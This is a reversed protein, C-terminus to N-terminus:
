RAAIRPIEAAPVPRSFYYGQFADCRRHRLFELQEATEVGEAVVELKLEHALAVVASTIAAAGADAVIDQVFSRDIKLTDVPFRMLNLLNSYGTGFDDLAIKVGLNRLARMTALAGAANEMAASETIELTLYRPELGTERLIGAVRSVLDNQRFQRGSLNVSVSFKGCGADHWCKTQACASRLAWEGMPVILGTEEALPIFEGPSVIGGTKTRLRILAEVGILSGDAADVQPQYELYFRDHELAGRLTEELTLRSRGTDAMERTHFLYGNRGNEKAYQMAMEAARLLAEADKGDDPHTSVGISCTVQLQHGSISITTSVTDLIRAVEAQLSAPGQSELLVLFQDAGYRMVLDEAGICGRLRRTIIRLVDDGVEYGLGENIRGFRDLSLMAVTLRTGNTRCASLARGVVGRLGRRDLQMDDGMAEIFAQHVSQRNRLRTAAEQLHGAERDQAFVSRNPHFAAPAVDALMAMPPNM